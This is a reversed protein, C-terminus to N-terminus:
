KKDLDHYRCDSKDRQKAEEWKFKKSLRNKLQENAFKTCNDYSIGELNTGKFDHYKLHELNVGELITNKLNAGKLNAKSLDADKLYLGNLDFPM